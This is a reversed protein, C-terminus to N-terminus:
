DLWVRLIWVDGAIVQCLALWESFIKFYLGHTGHSVIVLNGKAAVAAVNIVMSLFFVLSRRVSYCDWKFPTCKAYRLLTNFIIGHVLDVTDCTHAHMHALRLFINEDTHTIVHCSRVSIWSHTITASLNKRVSFINHYMQECKSMCLYSFRPRNPASVELACM